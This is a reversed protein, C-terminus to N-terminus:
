KKEEGKGAAAKEAAEKEAKEKDAQAKAAAARARRIGGVERKMQKFAQTLPRRAPCVYACSGCEICEMGELNEFGEPNRKQCENMMLVPVLFEPCASVCRGCRICPTEANAAVEDHTLCTLASSTKTTTADLSYMAFGMMPGGSIVKEPDQKFGGAAEILDKCNMGIRYRLNSPETVADGSVTMVREVTPTSLAVADYIAIVTSVNDVICGADAPLVGSNISRGTVAYILSREGGEPYKTLCECVEMRPEDKLMERLKAIAQPKNNEIAIVGKANEFLQLMIKVGGILKEPEELMLRYDCTIYPECEAANVIVHDIKSEDRPTLKVNNPFGAGGMGVVGCEKVIDRIEQKTLKTYDREAGFGEVAEYLGDNDIVVSLMKGGAPMQRPEIKKVTGSVSSIVCASIFGGPEAIKQGVLVRDGVKVIPKAPAGLHQSMSLVIEGSTPKLTRIASNEALEKGEYPHVGGKFTALGMSSGEKRYMYTHM